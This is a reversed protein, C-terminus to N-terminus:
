YDMGGQLQTQRLRSVRAREKNAAATDDAFNKAVMANHAAMFREQEAVAARVASLSDAKEKYSFAPTGKKPDEPAPVPASMQMLSAPPGAWTKLMPYPPQPYDGAQQRTRALKVKDSYAQSEATDKANRAAVDATKAAEFAQQTKVVNAAEAVHAEFTSRSEAPTWKAEKQAYSHHPHHHHHSHHHSIASTSGLLAILVISYKM